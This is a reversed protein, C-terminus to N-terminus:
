RGQRLNDRLKRLEGGRPMKDVPLRELVALAERRRGLAMLADVRVLSAELSLAGRPFAARYEDLLALARDPNRDRRLAAVASALAQSELELVSSSARPQPAHAPKEGIEPAVSATASPALPTAVPRTVVPQPATSSPALASAVTPTMRGSVVVAAAALGVGVVIAAALLVTAPRRRSGLDTAAASRALRARTAANPGVEATAEAYAALSRAARAEAENAPLEELWRKTESPTM